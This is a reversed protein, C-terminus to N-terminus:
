GKLKRSLSMTKWGFFLVSALQALFLGIVFRVYYTVDNRFETNLTVQEAISKPSGGSLLIRDIKRNIEALQEKIDAQNEKLGTVQLQLRIINERAETDKAQSYCVTCILM